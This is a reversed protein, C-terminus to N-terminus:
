DIRSFLWNTGITGHGSGPINSSFSRAVLTQLNERAEKRANESLEDWNAETQKEFADLRRDIDSLASEVERAAEDRQDESYDATKKWWKQASTTSGRRCSANECTVSRVIRELRGVSRAGM